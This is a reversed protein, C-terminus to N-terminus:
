VNKKGVKEIFKDAKTLAKEAKPLSYDVKQVMPKPYKRVLKYYNALAEGFFNEPLNNEKLFEKVYDRHQNIKIKEYMKLVKETHSFIDVPVYEGTHGEMLDKGRDLYKNVLTKCEDENIANEFAEAIMIMLAGIIKLM